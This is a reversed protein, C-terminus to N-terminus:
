PVRIVRILVPKSPVRIVRILVPKSPVRIVRIVLLQEQYFDAATSARTRLRRSGRGTSVGNTIQAIQTGNLREHDANRTGNSSGRSIDRAFIRTHRNRRERDVGQNGLDARADALAAGRDHRRRRARALRGADRGREGDVPRHDDQLGTADRRPAQRRADGGFLSPRDAAFDPPVDAELALEARLRRHEERGLADERRAQLLIREEASKRVMM